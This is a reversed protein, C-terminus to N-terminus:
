IKEYLNWVLFRGVEVKKKTLIKQANKFGLEKMVEFTDHESVPESPIVGKFWDTIQSTRMQILDGGPTMEYYQLLLDKMVEKYDEM